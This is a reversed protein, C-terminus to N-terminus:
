SWSRDERVPPAHCSYYRSWGGQIMIKAASCLMDGYRIARLLALDKNLVPSNQYFCLSHTAKPSPRSNSLNLPNHSRGNQRNQESFSFSTLWQLSQPSNFDDQHWVPCKCLTSTATERTVAIMNMYCPERAKWAGSFSISSYQPRPGEFDDCLVSLFLSM